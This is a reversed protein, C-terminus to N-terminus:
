DQLIALITSPHDKRVAGHVPGLHYLKQFLSTLPIGPLRYFDLTKLERTIAPLGSKVTKNWSNASDALLAIHKGPLPQAHAASENFFAEFYELQVMAAAQLKNRCKMYDNKASKEAALGPFTPLTLTFLKGPSWGWTIECDDLLSSGCESNAAVIVPPLHLTTDALFLEAWAKVRLPTLLSSAGRTLEAFGSKTGPVLKLKDIEPLEALDETDMNSIGELSAFVRQESLAVRALGQRVETERRDLIEALKLILRALWLREKDAASIKMETKSQLASFVSDSSIEDKDRIQGTTFPARAVSFLRTLDDSRSTEMERLLRNFRALDEHLPAPVYAKCLNEFLNVLNKGATDSETPLYFSISKFFFLLSAITYASPETEPFLLASPIPGMHM